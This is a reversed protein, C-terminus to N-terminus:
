LLGVVFRTALQLVLLVVIPSVDIMGGIPPIFRRFVDLYPDCLKGLFRYVDGVIGSGLPFWSMLIYIFIVMCYADSLALLLSQLALM